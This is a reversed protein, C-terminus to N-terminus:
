YMQESHRSVYTDYGCCIGSSWTLYYYSSYYFMYSGESLRTGTSNYEINYASNSGKGKVDSALQVKTSIAGSRDLTSTTIVALKSLTPTSPTTPSQQSAQLVLPVLIPGLDQTWRAVQQSASAVTKPGSHQFPTTSITSVESKTSM